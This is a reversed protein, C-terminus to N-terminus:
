VVFIILTIAPGDIMSDLFSNLVSPIRIYYKYTVVGISPSYSEMDMNLINNCINLFINKFYCIDSEINLINEEM